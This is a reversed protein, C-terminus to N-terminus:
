DIGVINAFDTLNWGKSMEEYDYMDMPLEDMKKAEDGYETKEKEKKESHREKLGIIFLALKDMDSRAMMNKAMGM